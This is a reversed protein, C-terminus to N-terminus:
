VFFQDRFDQAEALTSEVLDMLSNLAENVDEIGQPLKAHLGVDLSHDVATRYEAFQAALAEDITYQVSEFQDIFGRSRNAIRDMSKHIAAVQDVRLM